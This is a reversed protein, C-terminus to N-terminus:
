LGAGKRVQYFGETVAVVNGQPDKLDLQIEYDAKGNEHCAAKIRAAEDEKMKFECTIETKAPKLFKINLGKVIPFTGESFLYVHYVAGGMSEALTWLAGAYMTGIHNVNPELPVRLHIGEPALQDARIGIRSIFPVTTGFKSKDMSPNM